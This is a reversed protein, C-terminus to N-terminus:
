VVSKRDGWYVGGDYQQCRCRCAFHLVTELQNTSANVDFRGSDLLIEVTKFLGVNEGLLHQCKYMVFHLVNWGQLSIGYVIKEFRLLIDLIERDKLIDALRISLLWDSFSVRCGSPREEGLANMKLRFSKIVQPACLLEFCQSWEQESNLLGQVLKADKNIIARALIESDPPHFTIAYKNRATKNLETDECPLDQDSDIKNEELVDVVNRYENASALALATQGNEDKHDRDINNELLLNVFQLIDEDSYSRSERSSRNQYLLLHLLTQSHSTLVRVDFKESKLLIEILDLRKLKCRYPIHGAAICQLLCWDKRPSIREDDIAEM